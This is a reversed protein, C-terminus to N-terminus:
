SLYNTFIKMLYESMVFDIIFNLELKFHLWDVFGCVMMRMMRMMMGSSYGKEGNTVITWRKWCTKWAVVLTQVSSNNILERQDNLVQEVTHLSGYSLSCWKHTRCKEKPNTVIRKTPGVLSCYIYFSYNQLHIQYKLNKNKM